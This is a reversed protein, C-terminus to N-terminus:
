LLTVTGRSSLACCGIPAAFPSRVWDLQPSPSCELFAADSGLDWFCILVNPWEFPCPLHPFSLYEPSSVLLCCALHWCQTRAFAFPELLSHSLFLHPSSPVAGQIAKDATCLLHFNTRLARHFLLPSLSLTALDTFGKIQVRIVKM